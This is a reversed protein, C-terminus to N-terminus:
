TRIFTITGALLHGSELYGSSLRIRLSRRGSHNEFNLTVRVRRRSPLDMGDGRLTATGRGGNIVLSSVSLSRLLVHGRHDTYLFSARRHGIMARVAFSIRSRRAGRLAGHATLGIYRGGSGM